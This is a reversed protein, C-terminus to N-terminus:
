PAAYKAKLKVMQDAMWNSLQAKESTSLTRAHNDKRRCNSFCGGRVHYSLCIPKSDEGVPVPDSGVLDAIKMTAPLLSQLATDVSPNKVFLGSRTSLSTLASGTLTSGPTLTSLGTITTSTDDDGKLRNIDPFAPKTPLRPAILHYLASPLTPNTYLSLSIRTLIDLFQPDSPIVFSRKAQFWHFCILQINRLIHVPKIIRRTDIEYHLQNRFQKTFSQWFIRYHATLPHRPGLVVHILNGFLGLSKELEFFTIPHARLDKPLKFHDLDAFNLGFERESLLTYNRALEQSALRYDESGDMVVFPQVGTKLDDPHDSVFTITTLDSVLKPSPIPATNIYAQESKSFADLAERVVSFEQKKTAAALTFWLEPLEAEEQVNLLSKLVNFLLNFKSSPLTPQDREIERALRATHAEDAQSSVANAMRIIAANLGTDNKDYLNPLANHLLIQRHNALDQDVFPAVLALATVPPGRNNANSAHLTMRLWNLIPAAQNLFNTAQFSSVLINLAEKITYGKNSLLLPAYKTPLYMIHRTALLETDPIAQTVRPFLEGDNLNPLEIGLRGENYVYCQVTNFATAPLAVTLAQKGLVDGLFGFIRNDWPTEQGDMAPTYKSLVHILYIRPKTSAHLAACCLFTRPISPNGLAMDLLADADPPEAAMANFRALVAAARDRLPDKTEDHYLASFSDYRQVQPVAPINGPLGAAAAMPPLAAQAQNLVEPPPFPLGAAANQPGAAARPHNGQPIAAIAANGPPIAVNAPQFGLFAPPLQDAM